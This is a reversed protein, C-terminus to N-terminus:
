GSSECTPDLVPAGAKASIGRSWAVDGAGAVDFAVHPNGANRDGMQKVDLNIPGIRSPRSEARGLGDNGARSTAAHAIRRNSRFAVSGATGVLRRWPWRACSLDLLASPRRTPPAHKVSGLVIANQKWDSARDSGGRCGKGHTWDIPPLVHQPRAPRKSLIRSSCAESRHGTSPKVVVRGPILCSAALPRKGLRRRRPSATIAPKHTEQAEGFSAM